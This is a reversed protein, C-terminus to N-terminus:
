KLERGDMYEVIRTITYRGVHEIAILDGNGKITEVYRVADELTGFRTIGNEGDKYVLVRWKM